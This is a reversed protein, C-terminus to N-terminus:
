FLPTVKFTFDHDSTVEGPDGDATVTLRFGANTGYGTSLGLDTVKPFFLRRAFIISGATIDVMYAGAPVGSYTIDYVGGSIRASTFTHGAPSYSLVTAGTSGTVRGALVYGGDSSILSYLDAIAAEVTEATTNGAADELGVLAAGNGTLISALDAITTRLAIQSANTSVSADIATSDVILDGAQGDGNTIVINGLKTLNRATFVGAATQVMLALGAPLTIGGSAVLTFLELGTGASNIRIAQNAVPVPVTTDFTSTETTEAFTLSRDLDDAFQQDIDNRKDYEDEHTQPFYTGQNRIDTIQTVPVVRRITLKKTSPLNGATLVITSGNKVKVATVTYDVGLTLVTEIGTAIVRETVKLDTEKEVRFGYSYTDTADSGTHNNRSITGTRTM